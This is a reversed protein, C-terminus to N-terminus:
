SKRELVTGALARLADKYRSEPISELGELAKDVFEQAHRRSLELADTDHILQLVEEVEDKTKAPKKFVEKIRESGEYHSQMAIMLPLNPKGDILDMGRRKGLDAERGTIDLMDDVIQFAYGINLGFTGMGDMQDGSGGGIYVGVRASAEIPRATKGEIIRLYTDLPTTTIHEVEAQLIESEAMQACAEAVIEVIEEAELLGGLRFGKVFLFDGAILARQTGYKRYAAIAGRRTEAGDNIDDHVLTASHILEFATALKIIKDVDTGGVSRFALLSVGPRMRKGGSKVVHLAIETLLPQRSEVSRVIEEEVRRLEDKIPQDWSTAMDASLVM